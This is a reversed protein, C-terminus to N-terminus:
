NKRTFIDMMMEEKLCKTKSKLDIFFRRKIEMDM